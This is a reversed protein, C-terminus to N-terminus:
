KFLLPALDYLNRRWERFTHAYQGNQYQYKIGFSDFMAMMNLNNQYAIDSEGGM